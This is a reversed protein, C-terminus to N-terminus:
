DLLLFAHLAEIMDDRKGLIEIEEKTIKGNALAEKIPEVYKSHCVSCCFGNEFIPYASDAAYSSFRASLRKMFVESLDTNHVLDVVNKSKVNIKCFECIAERPYQSILNDIERFSLLLYEELVKRGMEEGQYAERTAFSIGRNFAIRASDLNQPVGNGQRYTTSLNFAAKSNLNKYSKIYYRLAEEYNQEVVMGKYYFSGLACIAFSYNMDASQKITKYAEEVNKERGNEGNLYDLGLLYLDRRQKNYSVVDVKPPPLVGFEKIKM